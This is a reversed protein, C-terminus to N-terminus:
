HLWMTLTHEIFIDYISRLHKNTQRCNTPERKRGDDADYWWDIYLHFLEQLKHILNQTACENTSMLWGSAKFHNVVVQISRISFWEVSDQDPEYIWPTWFTTCSVFPWLEKWIHSLINGLLKEEESSTLLIMWFWISVIKFQSFRWFTHLFYNQLFIWDGAHFKFVEWCQQFYKHTQYVVCFYLLFNFTCSVIDIM